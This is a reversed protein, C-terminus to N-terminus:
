RESGQLHSVCPTGGGSRAHLKQAAFMAGGPAREHLELGAM